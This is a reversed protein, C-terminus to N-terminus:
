RVATQTWLCQICLLPSGSKKKEEEKESSQTHFRHLHGMKLGASPSCMLGLYLPILLLISVQLFSSSVWFCFDWSTMTPIGSLGRQKDFSHASIWIEKQTHPSFIEDLNSQITEEKEKGRESSSFLILPQNPHLISHLSYFWHSYGWPLSVGDTRIGM